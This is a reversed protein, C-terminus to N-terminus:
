ERREKLFPLAKRLKNLAEWSLTTLHIEDKQERPTLLYEGNADVVCSHGNYEILNGDIGTRNVAVVYSQNEIARARLLVDWHAIRKAPWNAVYFLADYAAEEQNIIRNRASEPFRLDFCIQLNIKWGKFSIIVEKKGPHFQQDEGAFAFLHKKDYHVELLGKNIWVGRNYFLGNEQILLSTYIALNHKISIEKLFNLSPSSSFEEALHQADMSFATTAMEPLVLIDIKSCDELLAVIKQQNVLAQEWAQNFQALGVVLDQM